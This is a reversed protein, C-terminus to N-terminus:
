CNFSEGSVFLKLCFGGDSMSLAFFGVPHLTKTRATLSALILLHWTLITRQIGLIKKMIIIQELLYFFMVLPQSKQPSIYQPAKSFGTCAAM